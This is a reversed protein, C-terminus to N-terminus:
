KEQEQTQELQEEQVQEQVSEQVEVKVRERRMKRVELLKLEVRRNELHEEDSCTVGNKCRNKLETEGYGKAILRKIDVGDKVLYDVIKQSRRQSLKQNYADSGRADTHGGVEALEIVEYKKLATVVKDLSEFSRPDLEAKNYLFFVDPIDFVGGVLIPKLRVTVVSDKVTRLATLDLNEITQEVYFAGDSVNISYAQGGDLSTQYGKVPTNHGGEEFPKEEGMVYIKSLATSITDGTEDDIAIVTLDLRPIQKMYFKITDEKQGELALLDFTSDLNEYGEKEFAFNYVARGELTIDLTTSDNLDAALIQEKSPETKKVVVGASIREGTYFDYVEGHVILQPRDVMKIRVLDSHEASDAGFFHHSLYSYDGKEPISFYFEDDPTNFPAGMNMPKSWKTWTSDLRTSKFIDYGGLGGRGNSSYYLTEGDSDLFATAESLDSNLDTGMNLPESWKGRDDLFSVYLDQEGLSNEGNIALILTKNDNALYFSCTQDNKYGKIKLKEPFNWSEKSENWTAMSVGNKTLGGKKMYVNHLLLIEGDPSISHVSNDGYNNLPYKLHTAEGWTSDEDSYESVWIDRTHSYNEPHDVRFFYLQKGNPSIRPGSEIHRSNIKDGLNEVKYIDGNDQIITTDHDYIHAGVKKDFRSQKDVEKEVEEIPEQCFGTLFSASLLLTFGLKKIDM